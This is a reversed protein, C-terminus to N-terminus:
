LQTFPHLGYFITIFLQLISPPPWSIAAIIDIGIMKIILNPGIVGAYYPLLFM